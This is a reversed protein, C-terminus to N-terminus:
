EYQKMKNEMDKLTQLVKKDRDTLIDKASLNDNEIPESITTDIMSDVTNSNNISEDIVIDTPIDINENNTEVNKVENADYKIYNFM